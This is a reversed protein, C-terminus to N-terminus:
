CTACNREQFCSARHPMREVRSFVPTLRVQPVGLRALHDTFPGLHEINLANVCCIVDFRNWFHDDLLRAIADTVQQLAGPRQRLADHQEALGDLSLSITSLGAAKLSALRRASLQM